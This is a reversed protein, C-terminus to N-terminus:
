IKGVWGSGRMKMEGWLSDFSLTLLVPDTRAHYCKPSSKSLLSSFILCPEVKVNQKDPHRSDGSPV